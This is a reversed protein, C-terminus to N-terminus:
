SARGALLHRPLLAVFRRVMALTAAAADPRLAGAHVVVLDRGRWQWTWGRPAALLHEMMPPTVVDYAFRREDCKVWFARSFADGEFDIDEGGFADFLKHGLHEPEITLRPGDLPMPIVAVAFTYTHSSQSKGNHTTVTYQYTFAEFPLGDVQGALLDRSKRSHGQGFPRLGPFRGSPDGGKESYTWGNQAALARFAARRKEQARLVLWTVAVILAAVGAFFLIPFLYPSGAM